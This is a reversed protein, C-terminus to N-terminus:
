SLCNVTQVCDDYRLTQQKNICYQQPLTGTKLVPGTGWICHPCITLLPLSWWSGWLLLLGHIWPSVQASHKSMPSTPFLPAVCVAATSHVSPCATHDMEQCPVPDCRWAKRSHDLHWVGSVGVSSHLNDLQVWVNTGTEKFFDCVLIGCTPVPSTHLLNNSQWHKPQIYHKM